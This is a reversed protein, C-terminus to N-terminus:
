GIPLTRVVAQLQSLSSALARLRAIVLDTGPDESILVRFSDQIENSAEQAAAYAGITPSGMVEIQRGAGVLALDAPSPNAMEVLPIYVRQDVILGSTQDALQAHDAALLAIADGLTAFEQALLEKRASLEDRLAAEIRANVIVNAVAGVAAGNVPLQLNGRIKAGLSILQDFAGAASTGAGGDENARAVQGLTGFYEGLLAAHASLDALTQCITQDSAAAQEVADYTLGARNAILKATSADIQEGCASNFVPPLSAAYTEGLAAFDQFESRSACASLMLGVTGFVIIRATTHHM